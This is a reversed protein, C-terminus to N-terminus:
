GRIEDIRPTFNAHDFVRMFSEFELVPLPPSYFFGQMQDCQHHQLFDIKEVGASGM